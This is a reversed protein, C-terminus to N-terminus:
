AAYAVLRPTPLGAREAEDLAAAEHSALDPEATLWEWNDLVRLVYREAAPADTREVRFLSSSTSGGM